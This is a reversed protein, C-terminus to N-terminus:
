KQLNWKSIEFYKENEKVCIQEKSFCLKQSNWCKYYIYLKHQHQWPIVINKFGFVNRQLTHLTIQKKKGSKIIYADNTFM